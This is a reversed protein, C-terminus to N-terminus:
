ATAEGPLGIPCSRAMAQWGSSGAVARILRRPGRAPEPSRTVCYAAIPQSVNRLWHLEREGWEVGSLSGAATRTRESVM